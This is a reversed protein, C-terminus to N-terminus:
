GLVLKDAERLGVTDCAGAPLELVARTGRCGAMRWPPLREVIRQVVLDRDLFAVDIPFRMFFTHISSAPSLLIGEGEALESRGLLGRSRTFPTDAIACNSCVLFGRETRLSASRM